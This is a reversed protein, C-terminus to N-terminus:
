EDDSDILQEQEELEERHAEAESHTESRLEWEAKLKQQARFDDVERSIFVLKDNRGLIVRLDSEPIIAVTRLRSEDALSSPDYSQGRKQAEYLGEWDRPIESKIGICHTICENKIYDSQTVVSKIFGWSLPTKDTIADAFFARANVLKLYPSGPGDTLMDLIADKLDPFALTQALVRANIAQSNIFDIDKYKHRAGLKPPLALEATMDEQNEGIVHMPEKIYISRGKFTDCLKRILLMISLVRTDRSHVSPRPKGPEELQTGLVIATNFARARDDRLIVRSMDGYSAADGQAHRLLVGPYLGGLDWVNYINRPRKETLAEETIRATVDTLWSNPEAQSQLFDEDSEGVRKLGRIIKRFAKTSMGNFFTITSRASMTRALEAIRKLFRKKDTAWVNRWGIILINKEDHSDQALDFTLKGQSWLSEFNEKAKARKEEPLANLGANLRNKLEENDRKVSSPLPKLKTPDITCEGAIEKNNSYLPSMETGGKRLFELAEAEWQLSHKVLPPFYTPRSKIGIFILLDTEKLVYSPHVCMGFFAETEGKERTSRGEKELWMERYDGPVVGILM